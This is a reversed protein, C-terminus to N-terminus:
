CTCGDGDCCSPDLAYTLALMAGLAQALAPDALSYHMHRGRREAVVLGCGRLCSLHNSMSQRSVGLEAALDAPCHSGHRLALVIAARTPVSLAHGVHAVARTHAPAACAIHDRPEAGLSVRTDM